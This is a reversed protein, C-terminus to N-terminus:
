PIMGKDIFKTIEILSYNKEIPYGTTTDVSAQEGILYGRIRLMYEKDYHELFYPGNPNVRFSSDPAKIYSPSLKKVNNQFENLSYCTSGPIAQYFSLFKGLWGSIVYITDGKAYRIFYERRKEKESYLKYQYGSINDLITSDYVATIINIKLLLIIEKKDESSLTMTDAGIPSTYYDGPAKISEYRRWFPVVDALATNPIIGLENLPSAINFPENNLVFSAEGCAGIQFFLIMFISILNAFKVMSM